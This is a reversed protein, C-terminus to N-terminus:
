VKFDFYSLSIFFFQLGKLNQSSTAQCHNSYQSLSKSLGCGKMLDKPPASDLALEHDPSTCSESHCPQASHGKKRQDHLVIIKPQLIYDLEKKRAEVFLRRSTFFDM